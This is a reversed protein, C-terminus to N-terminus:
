RVHSLRRADIPRVGEGQPPPDARLAPTPHRRLRGQGDGGGAAKRRGGGELPLYLDAEVAKLWARSGRRPDAQLVSPRPAPLQRSPTSYIAGKLVGNLPKQRRSPDRQPPQGFHHEDSGISGPRVLKDAVSWGAAAPAESRRRRAPNLGFSVPPIPRVKPLGPSVVGDAVRHAACARGAREKPCRFRSPRDTAEGSRGHRRLSVMKRLGGIGPNVDDGQVRRRDRRVAVGPLTDSPPIPLTHCPHNPRPFHSRCLDTSTETRLQAGKETGM